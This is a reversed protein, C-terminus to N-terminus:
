KVKKGGGIRRGKGSWGNIAKTFPNDSNEQERPDQKRYKYIM